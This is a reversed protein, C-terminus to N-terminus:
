LCAEVSLLRERSADSFIVIVPQHVEPAHDRTMGRYTTGHFDLSKGEDLKIRGWWTTRSFRTVVGRRIRPNDSMVALV